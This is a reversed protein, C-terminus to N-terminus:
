VDNRRNVQIFKGLKMVLDGRDRQFEDLLHDAFLVLTRKVLNKLGELGPGQRRRGQALDMHAPVLPRIHGDLDLAGSDMFQDGRVQSDNVGEEPEQVAEKM